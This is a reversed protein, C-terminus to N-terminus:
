RRLLFFLLSLLLLAAGSVLFPAVPKKKARKRQRYDYFSERNKRKQAPLFVSFVSKVGYALMDFTGGDASFMLLGVGLFLVSAVFCGDTLCLLVAAKVDASFLGRAAAVLFAAAIGVGLCVAHKKITNQNM